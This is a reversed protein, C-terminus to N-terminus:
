RTVFPISVSSKRSSLQANRQTDPPTRGGYHLACHGSPLAQHEGERNTTEPPAQARRESRGGALIEDTAASPPPPSEPAPLEIGLTHYDCFANASGLAFSRSSECFSRYGVVCSGAWLGELLEIGRRSGALHWTRSRKRWAEIASSVLVRATLDSSGKTKSRSSM